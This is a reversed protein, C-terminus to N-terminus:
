AHQGGELREVDATLGDREAMMGEYMAEWRVCQGRLREVEGDLATVRASEAAIQKRTQLACYAGSLLACSEPAVDGTTALDELVRQAAILTDDLRIIHMLAYGPEWEEGAVRASLYMATEQMLAKDRWYDRETVVDAKECLVEALQAQVGYFAEERQDRERRLEALSACEDDSVSFRDDDVHHALWVCSNESM